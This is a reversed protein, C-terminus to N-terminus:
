GSYRKCLESHVAFTGRGRIRGKLIADKIQEKIQMYLPVDSSNSVIVNM